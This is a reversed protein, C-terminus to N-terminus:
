SCVKCSLTHTQQRSQDRLIFVLMFRHKSATKTEKRIKMIIPCEDFGKLDKILIKIKKKKSRVLKQRINWHMKDSVIFNILFHSLTSYKKWLVTHWRSKKYLPCINENCIEDLATNCPLAKQYMLQLPWPRLISSRGQNEWRLDLGPTKMM